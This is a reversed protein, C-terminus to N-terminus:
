AEKENQLAIYQEMAQDLWHLENQYFSLIHEDLRQQIFDVHSLDPNASKRKIREKEFLWQEILQSHYRKLLTIGEDKPLLDIQSWLLLFRNRYEPLPIEEPQLGTQLQRLGEETLHYIKKSPGSEQHIVECSLAGERCLALLATYIQNNNGSWLQHPSDQMAKKLDYGSMSKARLLGLIAFHINM